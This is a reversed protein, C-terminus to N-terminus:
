TASVSSSRLGPWVLMGPTNTAPAADPALSMASEIRWAPTSPRGPPPGGRALVAGAFRHRCSRAARSRRARRSGGCGGSRRRRRGSRRCCRRSRRRRGPRRRRGLALRADDDRALHHEGAGVRGLLVHLAVDLLLLEVAEHDGRARRLEVHVGEAADGLPGPEVGVLVGLDVDALLARPDVGVVRSPAVSLAMSRTLAPMARVRRVSGSSGITTSVVWRVSTMPPPTAPRRAAIPRASMPRPTKRTSRSASSPPQTPANPAIYGCPRSPRSSM